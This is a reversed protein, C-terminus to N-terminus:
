AGCLSDEFTRIEKFALSNGKNFLRYPVQIDLGVLETSDMRLSFLRQRQLHDIAVLDTLWHVSEFVTGTAGTSLFAATAEPTCVGGWILIDPSKALSKSNIRLMEKVASYLVLTTEGSVFGSAECGKLVVRGIGPSNKLITTLLDLDGVIPFCNYNDLLERLRQFVTATDEGFFGPHCEVWINRVETEKLLRGLSPGILVSASIKIDRVHGAPDAKRLFSYLEEARMLSFDFIARSGTQHAMQIVPPIIEEPRWVFAIIPVRHESVIDGRQKFAMREDKISFDGTPDM